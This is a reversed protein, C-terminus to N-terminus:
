PRDSLSEEEEEEKEWEEWVPAIYEIALKKCVSCYLEVQGKYSDPTPMCGQLSYIGNNPFQKNMFTIERVPYGVLPKSIGVELAKNHIQCTFETKM